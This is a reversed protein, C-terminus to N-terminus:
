KKASKKATNRNQMETLADRAALLVACADVAFECQQDGNPQCRGFCEGGRSGFGGLGELERIPPADGPPQASVKQEDLAIRRGINRRRALNDSHPLLAAPDVAVMLPRENL